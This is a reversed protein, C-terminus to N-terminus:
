DMLTTRMIVLPTGTDYTIAAWLRMGPTLATHREVVYAFNLREGVYRRIRLRCDHSELYFRSEKSFYIRQWDWSDVVPTWSVVAFPPTLPHTNFVLDTNTTPLGIWRRNIEQFRHVHKCPKTNCRGGNCLHHVLISNSSDTSSKWHSSRREQHNRSWTQFANAMRRYRWTWM